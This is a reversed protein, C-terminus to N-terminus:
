WRKRPYLWDPDVSTPQLQQVMPDVKMYFATNYITDSQHALLTPKTKLHLANSRRTKAQNQAHLGALPFVVESVLGLTWVRDSCNGSASDSSFGLLVKPLLASIVAIM